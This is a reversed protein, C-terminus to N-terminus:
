NGRLEFSPAVRGGCVVHWNQSESVVFRGTFWAVYGCSRRCNFLEHRRRKKSIPTALVLQVLALM